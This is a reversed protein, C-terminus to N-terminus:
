NKLKKIVKSTKFSSASLTLVRWCLLYNQIQFKIQPLCIQNRIEFNIQNIWGLTLLIPPNMETGHTSTGIGENILKKTNIKYNLEHGIDLHYRFKKQDSVDLASM